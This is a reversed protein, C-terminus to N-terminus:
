ALSRREIIHAAFASAKALRILMLPSGAAFATFGAPLPRLIRLQKRNGARTMFLKGCTSLKTKGNEIEGFICERYETCITIFYRAPSSYDWFDWRNSAIRHANRFKTM